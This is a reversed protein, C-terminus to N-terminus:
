AKTSSTECDFSWELHASIARTAGSMTVNSARTRHASTLRPDACILAHQIEVQSAKGSHIADPRGRVRTLEVHERTPEGKM